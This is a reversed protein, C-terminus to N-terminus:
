QGEVCSYRQLVTGVLRLRSSRPRPQGRSLRGEDADVFGVLSSPVPKWYMEAAGRGSISRAAVWRVTDVASLTTKCCCAKRFWQVRPLRLRGRFAESSASKRSCRCRFASLRQIGWVGRTTRSTPCRPRDSLRDRISVETGVRREDHLPLLWDFGVGTEGDGDPVIVRVESAQDTMLEQSMGCPPVVEGWRHVAVITDIETDGDAAALGIAVAEASVSRRRWICRVPCWEPDHGCHV